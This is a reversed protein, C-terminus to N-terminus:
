PSFSPGDRRQLSSPDSGLAQQLGPWVLALELALTVTDSWSPLIDQYGRASAHFLCELCSVPQVSGALTSVVRDQTNGALTGSYRSGASPTGQLCLPRSPVRSDQLLLHGRKEQIVCETDWPRHTSTEPEMVM